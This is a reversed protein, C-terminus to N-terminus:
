LDSPVEGGDKPYKAPWERRRAALWTKKRPELWDFAELYLARATSDETDLSKPEAKTVALLYHSVLYSKLLAVIPVASSPPAETAEDGGEDEDEDKKSVKTTKDVTQLGRLLDYLAKAERIVHSQVQKDERMGYSELFTLARSFLDNPM